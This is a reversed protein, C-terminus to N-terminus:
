KVDLIKLMEAFGHGGDSALIIRNATFPQIKLANTMELTDTNKLNTIGIEHCLFNLPCLKGEISRIAGDIFHFKGKHPKLKELVEDYEKYIM